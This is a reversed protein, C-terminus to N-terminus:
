LFTMGSSQDREPLEKLKTEKTDTHYVVMKKCKKCKCKMDIKSKTDSHGVLRGCRPCYVPIKEFVM